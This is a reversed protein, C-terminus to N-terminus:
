YDGQKRLMVGVLLAFLVSLGAWAAFGIVREEPEEVTVFVSDSYESVKGFVMTNVRIRNLGVESIEITVDNETGNYAEITEGNESQVIVSYWESDEISDWSIAVSEGDTITEIPSRVNPKPPVFDVKVLLTDGDISYGDMLASILYTYEGDLAGTVTVSTDTGQYIPVGNQWVQYGKSGPYEGWEITYDMIELDSDQTIFQPTTPVDYSLLEYEVKESHSGSLRDIIKVWNKVTDNYWLEWSIVGDEEDTIKYYTTEFDGAPTTVLVGEEKTIINFTDDYGDPHGPVGIVNTRNFHVFMVQESDFLGTRSGNSDTFDWGLTGETYYSSSEPDDVWYTHINLLNDSDVWRYSREEPMQYDGTLRMLFTERDEGFSDQIIETGIMTMDIERVTGSPTYDVQYGWSMGVRWLEDSTQSPLFIIRLSKPNVTSGNSNNAVINFEVMGPGEPTHELSTAYGRYILNSETIEGDYVSYYETYEGGEWTLMIPSVPVTQVPTIFSANEPLKVELDITHNLWGEGETILVQVPSSVENGSQSFSLVSTDGVDLNQILFFGDSNTISTTEGDSVEIGTMAVGASNTVFGYRSNKGEHFEFNNINPYSTGGRSGRDMKFHIYTTPSEDSDHQAMITYYSNVAFPGFESLGDIPSVTESQGVLSVYANDSQTVHNGDDDFMKFTIWNKDEHWDLEMDSKLDILRYIVTHGDNMFYARAVHEGGDLGSFTYEGDTSWISELSDVKISTSGANDGSSTLVSGYIRLDTLDGGNSQGNAGMPLIMTVLAITVLVTKARVLLDSKMLGEHDPISRYSM